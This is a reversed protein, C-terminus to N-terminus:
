LQAIHDELWKRFNDMEEQLRKAGDKLLEEHPFMERRETPGRFHEGWRIGCTIKQDHKKVYDGTVPTPAADMVLFCGLRHGKDDLIHFTAQTETNTNDAAREVYAGTSRRIEDEVWQLRQWVERIVESRSDKTSAEQEDM